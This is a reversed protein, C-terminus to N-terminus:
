NFSDANLSFLRDIRAKLAANEASALAPDSALVRSAEEQAKKLVNADAGLDAVHM